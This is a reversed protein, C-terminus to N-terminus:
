KESASIFTMLYWILYLRHINFRHKSNNKQFSRHSNATDHLYVRWYTISIINKWLSRIFLHRCKSNVTKHKRLSFTTVQLKQITQSMKFSGFLESSNVKSRISVSRNNCKIKLFITKSLNYTIWRWCIKQVFLYEHSTSHIVSEIIDLSKEIEHYTVYHDQLILERM